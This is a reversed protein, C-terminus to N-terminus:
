NVREKSERRREDLERLTGSKLRIETKEQLVM